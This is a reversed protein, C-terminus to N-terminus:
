QVSLKDNFLVSMMKFDYLNTHLLFLERIRALGRDCRFVLNMPAGDLAQKATTETPPKGPLQNLEASM